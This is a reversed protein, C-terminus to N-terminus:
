NGTLMRCEQITGPTGSGVNSWGHIIYKSGTSGLEAPLTNFRYDGRGRAQLPTDNAPSSAGFDIKKGSSIGIIVDTKITKAETVNTKTGNSTVLVVDDFNGSTQIISRNTGSGYSYSLISNKPSSTFLNKYVTGNLFENADVGNVVVGSCQGRFVMGVFNPDVKGFFTVSNITLGHVSKIDMAYYEESVTTAEFHPSNLTVNKVGSEGSILFPKKGGFYCGNFTFGDLGGSGHRLEIGIDNQKHGGFCCGNFAMVGTNNGSAVILLGTGGSGKNFRCGTMTIGSANKLCFGVQGSKVDLIEINVFDHDVPIITDDTLSGILIGGSATSSNLDIQVSDIVNRRHEGFGGSTAIAWGEGRYRITANKNLRGNASLKMGPPLYITEYVEYIGPSLVTEYARITAAYAIASKIALTDDTGTSSTTGNGKAGFDKVNISKSEFRQKWTAFGTSEYELKPDNKLQLSIQNHESVFREQPGEEYVTGDAGVSLVGTLPSSDGQLVAQRFETQTLKATEIANNATNVAEDAKSDTLGHKNLAENANDIAKNIKPYAEDLYDTDLIKPANAM